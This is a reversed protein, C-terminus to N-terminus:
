PTPARPLHTDLRAIWAKVRAANVGMDSYGIQSRSFIALAARDAGVPVVKIWITDPFRMFSTRQVFRAEYSADFLAVTQTLPEAEAIKILAAFVAAPTAIYIPAPANPPSAAPTLGAPAVLYHNPKSGPTLAEFAMYGQDADGFVLKWTNERGFLVFVAVIGLALVLLTHVVMMGLIRRM